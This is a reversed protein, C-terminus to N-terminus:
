ISSRLIELCLTEVALSIKQDPPGFALILLLYFLVKQNKETITGLGYNELHTIM